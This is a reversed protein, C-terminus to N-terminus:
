IQPKRILSLLLVCKNHSEEIEDDEDIFPHMELPSINNIIISNTTNYDNNTTINYDEEKKEIDLINNKSYNKQLKKNFIM